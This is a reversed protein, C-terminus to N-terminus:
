NIYKIMDAAVDPLPYYEDFVEVIKDIIASRKEATLLDNIEASKDQSFALNSLFIVASALLLITIIKIKRKMIIGERKLLHDMPQAKRVLYNKLMTGGANISDEKIQLWIQYDDYDILFFM